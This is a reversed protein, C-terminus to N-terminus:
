EDGKITMGELACIVFFEPQLHTTDHNNNLGNMHDAHQLLADCKGMSKGPCHHRVFNFRSLNLYWHAQRHNLKKMTMFYKLNKHDTWIKVKHKVGELFHRWEELSRMVVLM